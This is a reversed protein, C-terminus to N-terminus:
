ILRNRTDVYAVAFPFRSNLVRPFIIAQDLGCTLEGKWDDAVDEFRPAFESGLNEASPPYTKMTEYSAWLMEHSDNEKVVETMRRAAENDDIDM